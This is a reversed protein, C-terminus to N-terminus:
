ALSGPGAASTAKVYKQKFHATAQELAKEARRMRDAAELCDDTLEDFQPCGAHFAEMARDENREADAQVRIARALKKMDAYFIRGTESQRTQM